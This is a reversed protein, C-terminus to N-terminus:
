EVNLMVWTNAKWEEGTLKRYQTSEDKKLIVKASHKQVAGAEVNM